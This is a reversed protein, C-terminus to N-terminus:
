KCLEDLIEFGHDIPDNGLMVSLHYLRDAILDEKDAIVRNLRRPHSQRHDILMFGIVFKRLHPDSHGVTVDQAAQAIHIPRHDIDCGPERRDGFAAPDDDVACQGVRQTLLVPQPYASHSACRNLAVFMQFRPRQFPRSVQAIVLVTLLPPQAFRDLVDHFVREPLRGAPRRSKRPAAFSVVFGIVDHRLTYRAVLYEASIDALSRAGSLGMVLEFEAEMNAIVDAVGTAGRVALGYINPRGLTVAQAGLAIAPFIDAGGLIGSDLILPFEPGLARRIDTLADLSSIAGVIQRGGHNSVMIADVGLDRAKLADDPHLIGKLVIPLRTRDRLGALHQWSLAPNSYVDLFTEIAARPVPSRVNSLFSGPH